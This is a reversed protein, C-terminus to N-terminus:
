RESLAEWGTKLQEPCNKLGYRVCENYKRPIQSKELEKPDYYIDAGITDSIYKKFINELEAQLMGKIEVVRVDFGCRRLKERLPQNVYGSCIEIRHTSPAAEFENLLDIALESYKKLYRKTMFHNKTDKRFYEVPVIATKVVQEDSVGVMIGGLPFGWGADDIRLVPLAPPIFSAYDADILKRLVLLDVCVISHGGKRSNYKYIKINWKPSIGKIEVGYFSTLLYFNNEYRRKLYGKKFAAELQTIIFDIEKSTFRDANLNIKM